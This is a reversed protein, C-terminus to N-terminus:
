INQNLSFEDVILVCKGNEYDRKAISWFLGLIFVFLLMLNTRVSVMWM